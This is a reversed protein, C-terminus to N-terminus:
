RPSSRHLQSPERQLRLAIDEAYRPSTLSRTGGTHSMKEGLEVDGTLTSVWEAKYNGAPLELAVQTQPGGTVYVAYAEGVEALTWATPRAGPPSDGASGAGAHPTVTVNHPAMRLFDFGEIFRKLVGLQRRLEPSGGGPTDLPLPM